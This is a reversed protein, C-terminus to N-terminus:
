NLSNLYKSDIRICSYEKLEFREIDKEEAKKRSSATKNKFPDYLRNLTEETMLFDGDDFERFNKAISFYKTAQRYFKSFLKLDDENNIVARNMEMDVFKLFERISDNALNVYDLYSRLKSKENPLYNSYTKLKKRLNNEINTFVVLNAIEKEKHPRNIDSLLNMSNYLVKHDLYVTNVNPMNIKNYNPPVILIDIKGKEFRRYADEKFLELESTTFDTNFKKNYDKLIYKSVFNAVDVDSMVGCNDNFKSLIAVVNLDTGTKIYDYYKLISSVSYVMFMAQFKRNETLRNHNEIIWNSIQSIRKPYSLFKKSYKIDTLDDNDLFRVDMEVLNSDDMANQLLYTGVRKDFNHKTTRGNVADKNFKPMSSLLYFKSKKFFNQIDPFSKSNVILNADDFVFVINENCFESFNAANRNFANRFLTDFTIVFKKSRLKNLVDKTTKALAPQNLFSSDYRSTILIVKDVKKIKLFSQALRLSTLSNGSGSCHWVYGNKGARYQNILNIIAEIQYNRLMVSLNNFIFPKNLELKYFIDIDRM